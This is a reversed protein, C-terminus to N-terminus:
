MTEIIIHIKKRIGNKELLPTHFLYYYLSVKSQLFSNVNVAISLFAQKCPPGKVPRQFSLLLCNGVSTDFERYIILDEQRPIQFKSAQYAFIAQKVLGWYFNQVGLSVQAVWTSIEQTNSPSHLESQTVHCLNREMCWNGKSMKHKMRKGYYLRAVPIVM